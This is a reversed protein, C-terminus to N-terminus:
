QPTIRLVFRTGSELKVNSTTSTLISPQSGSQATTLQVNKMGLAGQSNASLAVAGAPVASGGPGANGAMSQNDAHNQPLGGMAAGGATGATGGSSTPTPASSGTDGLLTVPPPPAVAQIVAHFPLEQDKAPQIKDFVIGLTSQGSDGKGRAQVQAVHGIIRSNKPIVKGDPSKLDVTTKAVVQDNEKAKKADITKDLVAGITMAEGAAADGPVQGSAPAQAAPAQPTQTSTQPAQSSMQGTAQASGPQADRPSQAFVCLSLLILTLSITCIRKM